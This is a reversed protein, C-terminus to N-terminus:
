VEEIADYRKLLARIEDQVNVPCYNQVFKLLHALEATIQPLGNEEGDGQSDALCRVIDAREAIEHGDSPADTKRARIIRRHHNALDRHDMTTKSRAAAEQAATPPKELKITDRGNTIRFAADQGYDRGDNMVHRVAIESEETTRITSYDLWEGGRLVQLVDYPTFTYSM